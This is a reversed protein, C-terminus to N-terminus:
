HIVDDKWQVKLHFKKIPIVRPRFKIESKRKQNLHTSMLLKEEDIYFGDTDLTLM